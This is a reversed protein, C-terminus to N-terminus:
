VEFRKVNEKLQNLEKQLNVIDPDDGHKAKIKDLNGQMERSQNDIKIINNRLGQIMENFAASLDKLQDLHRLSASVALNGKGIERAVKEFKFLPGAIKHSVLLVVLVTIASSLAIVLFNTVFLSPLLMEGTDRIKM